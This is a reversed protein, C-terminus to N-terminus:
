LGLFINSPQGKLTNANLLNNEFNIAVRACILKEYFFFFNTIKTVSHNTAYEQKSLALTGQVQIIVGVRTPHSSVEWTPLRRGIM